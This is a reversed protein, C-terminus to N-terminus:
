LKKLREAAQRKYLDDNFDVVPAKAIWQYQERAKARDGRDAYIGALDLRHVIRTPDQAVAAELLRQAEAWSALSFLEAGLFTRAFVRALGSVRMVEAHWMGLVHLAGAHTGDLRLAENAEAYVIKSYRIRERAGVSLAKRGVARALAFHGEVDNSRAAIASEAHARAADILTDMAPGKGAAEALDTEARSAKWLAEYNQPDIAIAQGFLDRATTARRQTYAADGQAILQAPTQAM